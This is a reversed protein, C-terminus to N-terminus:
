FLESPEAVNLVDELMLLSEALHPWVHLHEVTDLGGLLITCKRFDQRLAQRSSVEAVRGAATTDRGGSWGRDRPVAIGAVVSELVKWMQELEAVGRSCGVVHFLIDLTYCVRDHM